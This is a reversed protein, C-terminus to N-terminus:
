LCVFSDCFVYQHTVFSMHILRLLRHQPPLMQISRQWASSSSHSTHKHIHTHTHTHLGVTHHTHGQTSQCRNPTALLDQRACVRTLRPLFCLSPSLCLFFRHASSDCIVIWLMSCLIDASMKRTKKAFLITLPFVEDQLNPEPCLGSHSPSLFFFDAVRM